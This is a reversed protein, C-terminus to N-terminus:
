IRCWDCRWSLTLQDMKKLSKWGPADIITEQQHLISIHDTHSTKRKLITNIDEDYFMRWDFPIRCEGPIGHFEPYENIDHIPWKRYELEM